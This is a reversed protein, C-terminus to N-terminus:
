TYLKAMIINGNIYIHMGQPINTYLQQSHNNPFQDSTSKEERHPKSICVKSSDLASYLACPNSYEPIYIHPPSLCPQAHSCKRITLIEDVPCWSDQNCLSSKSGCQVTPTDELNEIKM